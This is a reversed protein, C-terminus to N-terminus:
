AALGPRRPGSGPWQVRAGEKLRAFTRPGVWAALQDKDLSSTAITPLGAQDRRNFIVGVREAAIAYAAFETGLDDLVLWRVTAAEMIIGPRERALELLESCSWWAVTQNARVVRSLCAAAAWSKGVRPSGLVILNRRPDLCWRDLVALVGSPVPPTADVLNEWNAAGLKAPLAHVLADRGAALQAAQRAQHEQEIRNLLQSDAGTTRRVPISAASLSTVAPQEAPSGTKGNAAAPGAPSNTTDTHWRNDETPTSVM